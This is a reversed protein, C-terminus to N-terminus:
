FWPRPDVPRGGLRVEFHLHPGTSAGTSGVLGIVQGAAVQQGPQVLIRLQHGYCTMMRQERVAGHGVCTYRGYGGFWGARLVTGGAAARIPTGAPAALDLGAHLQYVHFYPDYRNGFPSTLRGDVPSLLRNGPTSTIAANTSTVAAKANQDVLRRLAAVLALQGALDRKVTTLATGAAAAGKRAAAVRAEAGTVAQVWRHFAEIDRRQADMGLANVTSPGTPPIPSDDARAIFLKRSIADRERRAADLGAQATILEQRRAAVRSTAVPITNQLTQIRKLATYFAQLQAASPTTVPDFPV